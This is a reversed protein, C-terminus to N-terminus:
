FDPKGRLVNCPLIQLTLSNQENRLFFILFFCIGFAMCYVYMLKQLIMLHLM